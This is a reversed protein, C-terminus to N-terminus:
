RRSGDPRRPEHRGDKHHTCTPALLHEACLDRCCLFCNAESPVRAGAARCVECRNRIALEREELQAIRSELARVQRQLDSIVLQAAHAAIM